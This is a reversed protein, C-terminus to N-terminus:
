IRLANALIMDPTLAAGAAISSAVNSREKGSWDRMQWGIEKISALLALQPDSKATTYLASFWVKLAANVSDTMVPIFTKRLTEDRQDRGQKLAADARKRFDNAKDLAAQLEQLLVSKNPFDYQALAALGPEFDSKVANRRKEIEAFLAGPAPDAGQLGNNTALREMLVEFLGKIFRNAGQDFDKQGIATSYASFATKGKWVISVVFLVVLLVLAAFLVTKISTKARALGHSAAVNM